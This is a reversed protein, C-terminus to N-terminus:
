RQSWVSLMYRSIQRPTVIRLPGLRRARDRDATRACAQPSLCSTQNSRRHMSAARREGRCVRGGGSLRHKSWKCKALGRIFAM